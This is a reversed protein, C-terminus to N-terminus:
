LGPLPAAKNLLYRRYEAQSVSLHGIALVVTAGALPWSHLFLAAAGFYIVPAVAMPLSIGLMPQFFSKIHRGERMYRAWGAYYFLLCVAMVAAALNFPRIPYFFPITFASAQGLREIIEIGRFWKSRQVYRRQLM